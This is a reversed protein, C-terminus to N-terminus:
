GELVNKAERGREKMDKKANVARGTRGEEQKVEVHKEKDVREKMQKEDSRENHTILTM